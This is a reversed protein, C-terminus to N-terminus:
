TEKVRGRTETRLVQRYLSQRLTGGIGVNLHVMRRKDRWIRDIMPHDAAACSDCWAINERLLIDLNERQLLVGPSYRAYDEDFATKFSYAGPPTLFNALMAIPRGDLLLSLRELRSQEAAGCLANRFLSITSETSALASGERGKWGAAELSLFSDIWDEIASADDQRTFVLDGLESLRKHQRRLEKRKKGTMAAEFYAEPSLQSELFARDESYVIAAPRREQGAIDRLAAHSPGSGIIHSLHLFLSTGANRDAWSLLSSWFLHETGHAVLPVGCFANAHMWTRFHPLRYDYYKGSRTIPMLGILEGDRRLSAIQVHGEPDLNNLAPLLYWSEFFPNPESAATALADWEAISEQGQLARWPAMTFVMSGTTEVPAADLVSQLPLAIVVNVKM